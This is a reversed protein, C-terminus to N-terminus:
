GDSQLQSKVIRDAEEVMYLPLSILRYKVEAVGKPSKITHAVNQVTPLNLDFRLAMAAKKNYVFQHLSRLSGSKGSKVEIPFIDRNCQRLFDVESNVSRKERLWYHLRPSENKRSMTLLHQAIFQEALPGENVFKISALVEDSIWDLKCSRNLLGCDLFYVKYISDDETARLPLGNGDSHFTQTIVGAKALLTVAKKLDRAQTDPDINSYKLKNGAISPVKEFVKRVRILESDTCYKSFDDQYTELISSQARISEELDGTTVYQYVSEPMGGTLLYVRMLGLLDQHATQPFEGGLQYSNLLDLLETEQNADLFEKFTMPGMFLYEIRGVPMSFNHKSLTFELLSGAAIVPLEPFEEYFYRLAALAQPTAQIEDLFLLSGPKNVLGLKCIYQIESLIKPINLTAFTDNLGPHRELNVEHLVLGQNKAFQAVLTSKGVQRAGRLILPKRRSRQFWKNLIKEDHRKMGNYGM